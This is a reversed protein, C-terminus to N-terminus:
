KWDAADESGGSISKKLSITRGTLTEDNAPFINDATTEAKEDFDEDISSIVANKKSKCAVINLAVDRIDTVGFVTEMQAKVIGSVQEMVESVTIKGADMVARICICFGKSKRYIIIKEIELCGLKAIALKLVGIIAAVKIIIKGDANDVRIERCGRKRFLVWLLLKLLLLLVIGAFVGIAAGRYFENDSIKEVLHHHSIWEVVRMFLTKM